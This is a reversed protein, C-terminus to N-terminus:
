EAALLPELAKAIAGCQCQKRDAVARVSIRPHTRKAVDRPARGIALLNIISWDRGVNRGVCCQRFVTLVDEMMAIEQPTVPAPARLSDETEFGKIILWNLSRWQEEREAQSLAFDPWPSRYRRHSRTRTDDPLRGMIWHAWQLARFVIAAPRFQGSAFLEEEHAIEFVKRLRHRTATAFNLM